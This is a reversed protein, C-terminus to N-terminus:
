APQAGDDKEKGQVQVEKGSNQDHLYVELQNFAINIDNERAMRDIARNVEDTTASRDGITRVYFRLQHDLSSAGFETFYM